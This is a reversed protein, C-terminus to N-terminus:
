LLFILHKKLEYTLQKGLYIVLFTEGNGKMFNFFTQKVVHFALCM